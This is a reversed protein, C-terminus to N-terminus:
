KCIGALTTIGLKWTKVDIETVLEHTYANMLQWDGNTAREFVIQCKDYIDFLGNALYSVTLTDSASELDITGQLLIAAHGQETDLVVGKDAEIEALTFYHDTAPNGNYFDIGQIRNSTDLAVSLESTDSNLDSMINVLKELKLDPPLPTPTMEAHAISATLILSTALTALKLM